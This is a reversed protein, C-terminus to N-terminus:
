SVGATAQVAPPPIYKVSQVSCVSGSAAVPSSISELTLRESESVVAPPRKHKTGGRRRAKGTPGVYESAVAPPSICELTPSVLRPAKGATPEHVSRADAAPASGAPERARRVHETAIRTALTQILDRASSIVARMTGPAYEQVRELRVIHELLSLRSRKWEATSVFFDMPKVVCVTGLIHKVFSIDEEDAVLDDVALRLEYRRDEEDLALDDVEAPGLEYSEVRLAM